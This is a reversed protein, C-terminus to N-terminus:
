GRIKDDLRGAAPRRRHGRGQAFDRVIPKGTALALAAAIRRKERPGAMGALPLMRGRAQAALREVAWTWWPPLPLFTERWCELQRRPIRRVTTREFASTEIVIEDPRVDVTEEAFALAALGLLALPAALGVAASLVALLPLPLDGFDGKQLGAEWAGALRIGGFFGAGVLAGATASLRLRDRRRRVLPRIEIHLGSPLPTILVRGGDRNAM